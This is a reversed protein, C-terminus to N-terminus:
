QHTPFRTSLTQKKHANTKDKESWSEECSDACQQNAINKDERNHLDLKIWKAHM